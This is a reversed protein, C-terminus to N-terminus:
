TDEIHQQSGLNYNLWLDREQLPENRIVYEVDGGPHKIPVEFKFTESPKGSGGARVGTGRVSKGMDM